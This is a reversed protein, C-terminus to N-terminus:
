VFGSKSPSAVFARRRGDAGRDTWAETRGRRQGDVGGYMREYMRKNARANTRENMRANTCENTQANTQESTCENTREDPCEHM